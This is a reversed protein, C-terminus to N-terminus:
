LLTVSADDRAAAGREQCERQCLRLWHITQADRLCRWQRPSSCCRVGTTTSAGVGGGGVVVPREGVHGFVVTRAVIADTHSRGSGAPSTNNCLAVTPHSLLRREM